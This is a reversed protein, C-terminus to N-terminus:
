EGKPIPREPNLKLAAKLLWEIAETRAAFQRKFRYQDIRAMLEKDINMNLTVKGEPRKAKPPM